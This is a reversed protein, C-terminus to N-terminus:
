LGQVGAILRLLTSRTVAPDDDSGPVPPAGPVQNQAPV